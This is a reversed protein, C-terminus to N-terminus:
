LGNKEAACGRTVQPKGERSNEKGESIAWMWRRVEKKEDKGRVKLHDQHRCGHKEEHMEFSARAAKWPVLM